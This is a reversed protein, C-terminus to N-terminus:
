VQVARTQAMLQDMRARHTKTYHRTAEVVAPPAYRIFQATNDKRWIHWASTVSDTAWEGTKQSRQYAFRPLFLIGTPPRNVLFTQRPGRKLPENISVRLHMAVGIRAHHLCQDIIDIAPGFPPNSVHWDCPGINDYLEGRTADLHHDAEFGNYLDNTVWTREAWCALNGAARIIAGSGVCPECVRGAIHVTNFLYESFPDPTEYFEFTEIISV